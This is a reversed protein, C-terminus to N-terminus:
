KRRPNNPSNSRWVWPPIFKGRWMGLGAEKAEAEEDVYDMSYRRYALAWGNHVMKANLDDQGIYCVALLRGYRDHDDGKCTIRRDDIFRALALTAEKGCSWKKGDATCSQNAEPADIGHLRIKTSGIWLTDGDIIRPIGAVSDQALTNLPFLLITIFTLSLWM